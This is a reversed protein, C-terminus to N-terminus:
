SARRRREERVDLGSERDTLDVVGIENLAQHHFPLAESKHGFSLLWPLGAASAAQVLDMKGHPEFPIKKFLGGPYDTCM